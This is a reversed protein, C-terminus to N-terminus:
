TCSPGQFVGEVEGLSVPDRSNRPITSPICDMVRPNSSKGFPRWKVVIMTVHITSSSTQDVTSKTDLHESVRWDRVMIFVGKPPNGEMETGSQCSVAMGASTDLVVSSLRDLSVLSWSMANRHRSGITPHIVVASLVM